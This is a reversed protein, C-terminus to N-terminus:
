SDRTTVTPYYLKFQKGKYVSSAMDEEAMAAPQRQALLDLAIKAVRKNFENGLTDHYHQLDM